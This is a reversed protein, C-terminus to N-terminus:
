KILHGFWVKYDPRGTCGLDDYLKREICHFGATADAFMAESFLQVHPLGADPEGAVTAVIAVGAPKLVREIEAMTKRVSEAASDGVFEHLLGFSYVGDFQADRFPLCLADSEVWFTKLQAPAARKQALMLGSHAADLGIVVAGSGALCLSDRGTGCGLDLIIRSKHGAFIEAAQYACASPPISGLKSDDLYFQQWRSM